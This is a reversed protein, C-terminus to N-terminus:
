LNLTIIWPDYEKAENRFDDQVSKSKPGIYHLLMRVVRIKQKISLKVINKILDQVLDEFLVMVQSKVLFEKSPGRKSKKGNNRASESNFPM